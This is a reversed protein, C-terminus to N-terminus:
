QIVCQPEKKTIDYHDLMMSVFIYLMHDYNNTYENCRILQVIKDIELHKEAEKLTGFTSGDLTVYSVIVKIEEQAMM